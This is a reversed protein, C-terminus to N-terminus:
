GRARFGQGKRTAGWKLIEPLRDELWYLSSGVMGDPKPFPHDSYRRGPASSEWLYRRVTQREINLAKAVDATDLLMTNIRM